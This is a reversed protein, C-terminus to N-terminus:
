KSDISYYIDKACPNKWFNDSFRDARFALLSYPNYGEPYPNLNSVIYTQLLPPFYILPNIHYNGFRVGFHLHDESILGIIQGPRVIDGRKVLDKSLDVHGYTTIANNYAFRINPLADGSGSNQVASVISSETGAWILVDGKRGPFGLGNHLGRLNGYPCNDYNNECVSKAYSNPGFGYGKRLTGNGFTNPFGPYPLCGFTGSNGCNDLLYKNKVYGTILYPLQNLKIAIHRLSETANRFDLGHPSDLITVTQNDQLQSVIESKNNNKYVPVGDNTSRADVKVRENIYCNVCYGSPDTEIIPNSEGYLWKNFSIPSKNNGEWV